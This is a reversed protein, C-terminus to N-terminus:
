LPSCRLSAPHHSPWKPPQTPPGAVPPCHTWLSTEPKCLQISIWPWLIVTSPALNTSLIIFKKKLQLWRIINHHNKGYTLMFQGYAYRHEREGSGGGVERMGGPQWLASAKPARSWVDLEWQSDIKCITLLLHSSRLSCFTTLNQLSISELKDHM